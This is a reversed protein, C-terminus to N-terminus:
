IPLLPYYDQTPPEASSDVSLSDLSPPHHLASTDAQPHPQPPHRASKANEQATQSPCSSSSHIFPSLPPLPLPLYESRPISISFTKILLHSSSNQNSNQDIFPQSPIPCSPIPRQSPKYSIGKKSDLIGSNSFIYFIYQM